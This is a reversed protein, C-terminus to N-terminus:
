SHIGAAFIRPISEQLLPLFLAVCFCCLDQLVTKKKKKKKIFIFYFFSIFYLIFEGFSKILIVLTGCCTLHVLAGDGAVAGKSEHWM